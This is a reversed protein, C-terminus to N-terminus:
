VAEGGGKSGDAAQGNGEGKFEDEQAGVMSPVVVVQMGAAV